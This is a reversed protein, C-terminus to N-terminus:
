SDPLNEGRLIAQVPQELEKAAPCPTQTAAPEVMQALRDHCAALLAIMDRGADLQREAVSQSLDEPVRTLAGIAEVGAMRAGGKLTHVDRQREAAVGRNSPDESWTHLASGTSNILDYAEELFIGILEPDLHSLDTVGEATTDEIEASDSEDDAGAEDFEVDPLALEESETDPTEIPAIDTVPRIGRADNIYDHIEQNLDPAPR